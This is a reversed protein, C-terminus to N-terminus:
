VTDVADIIGSSEVSHEVTKKYHRKCYQSGVAAISTCKSGSRHVKADSTYIHNCYQYHDKKHQRIYARLHVSCLIKGDVETQKTVKKECGGDHQCQPSKTQHLHNGGYRKLNIGNKEIYTALCESWLSSLNEYPMNVHTSLERLVCDIDRKCFANM